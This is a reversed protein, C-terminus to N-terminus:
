SPDGSDEYEEKDRAKPSSPCETTKFYGTKNGNIDMVTGETIGKSFKEAILKLLRPAEFYLGGDQFADGDTEIQITVM